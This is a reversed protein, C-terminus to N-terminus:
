ANVRAKKPTIMDLVLLNTVIGSVKANEGSERVAAVTQELGSTKGGYQGLDSSDFKIDKAWVQSLADYNKTSILFASKYASRSIAETTSSTPIPSATITFCLALASFLLLPFNM